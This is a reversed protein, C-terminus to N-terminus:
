GPCQVNEILPRICNDFHYAQNDSLKEYGNTATFKAIGIVVHESVNKDKASQELIEVHNQIIEQLAQLNM